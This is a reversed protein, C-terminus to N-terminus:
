KGYDVEHAEYGAYHNAEDMRNQRAWSDNQKLFHKVALIIASRKSDTEIELYDRCYDPEQLDHHKTWEPSIVYFLKNTM